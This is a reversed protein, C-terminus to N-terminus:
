KNEEKTHESERQNIIIQELEQVKKQLYESEKRYKNHFAAQMSKKDAMEALEHKLDATLYEYFAKLETTEKEYQESTKEM